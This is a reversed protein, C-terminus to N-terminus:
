ETIGNVIRKPDGLIARATTDDFGYIEQLLALGASYQTIGQAVSEQIGLVGQVGGVSGKLRAKAESEIDVNEPIDDGAIDDIDNDFITQATMVNSNTEDQAMKELMERQQDFTLSWFSDDMQSIYTDFSWHLTAKWKPLLGTAMIAIVDTTSQLYYNDIKQKLDVTMKLKDNNAFRVSMLEKTMEGRIADPLDQSDRLEASLDTESRLAFSVPPKVSPSQFDVYRVNGLIDIGWKILNFMQNSYKSIFSFLEERDILKGTATEKGSKKDLSIEIGMFSFSVAVNHNVENRLADIMSSDKKVYTVPDFPLPESDNMRNPVQVQTVRLPSQMSRKGSGNCSPCSKQESDDNIVYGDVCGDFDCEDVWEIREMFVNSVKNVRLNTADILADNLNPVADMFLSEYWIARDQTKAEGGLMQVPLKGLNHEYYLVAEFKYDLKKGIQKLIWINKHDYLKFILGSQEKRNGYEVVSKESMLLLAMESNIDIVKPSHYLVFIPEVLETDVIEADVFDLAIVANADEDKAPKVINEFYSMLSNFKPFDKTFYAEASQDAYVGSDNGWDTISYNQPNFIRNIQTTAKKWVPRTIPQYTARKYDFEEQTENPASESILVDPFTDLQSHVKVKEYLEVAHSYREDTWEKSKHVSEAYPIVVGSLLDDILTEDFVMKNRKEAVV